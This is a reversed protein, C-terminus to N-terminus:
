VRIFGKLDATKNTSNSHFVCAAQHRNKEGM